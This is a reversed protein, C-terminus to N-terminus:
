GRDSELQATLWHQANGSTYAWDTHDTNVHEHRFAEAVAQIAARAQEACECSSGECVGKWPLCYSDGPNSEQIAGAVREVLKTESM